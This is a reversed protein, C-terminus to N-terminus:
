STTLDTLDRTSPIINKCFIILIHLNCKVGEVDQHLLVVLNLELRQLSLHGKCLCPFVKFFEALAHVNQIFDDYNERIELISQYFFRLQQHSDAIMFLAILEIGFNLM